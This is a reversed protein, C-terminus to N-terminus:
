SSRGKVHESLRRKALEKPVSSCNSFFFYLNFSVVMLKITKWQSQENMQQLYKILRTQNGSKAITSPLGSLPNDDFKLTSLEM